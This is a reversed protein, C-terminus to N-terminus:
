ERHRSRHDLLLYIPISSFIITLFLYVWFGTTDLPRSTLINILVYILTVLFTSQIFIVGIVLHLQRGSLNFSFFYALGAIVLYAAIARDTLNAAGGPTLGLVLTTGGYLCLFLGLGVTLKNFFRKGKM